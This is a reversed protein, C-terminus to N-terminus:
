EHACLHSLVVDPRAESGNLGLYNDVVWQPTTQYITYFQQLTIESSQITYEEISELWTWESWNLKAQPQAQADQQQKSHEARM